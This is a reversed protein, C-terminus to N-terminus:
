LGGRVKKIIRGSGYVFIITLMLILGSVCTFAAGLPNDRAVLFYYSILSGVLLYKGGGLLTPIVFEGFAPVLVLLFGTKIGPWSLPVTIRWFTQWPTAGLDASADLLRMDIKELISYLPMIMFPLYCYIMVMYIAFLSNALLLPEKIIHLKRLIANILGNRELLYFWAYIQVLFNVWFPLTLLFLLFGKGRKVHLALYYAVPYALFLCVTATTIAILLSRFIIKFYIFDLLNFYNHLTPFVSETSFSFYLIISVPIVVFVIQWIVAPLSYFFPLDMSFFNQIRKM